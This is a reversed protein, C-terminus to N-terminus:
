ISLSRHLIEVIEVGQYLYVNLDVSTVGEDYFCTGGTTCFGLVIWQETISDQLSSNDIDGPILEHGANRDYQVDYQLRDYGSVGTIEFGVELLGQRKYFDLVIGQEPEQGQVRFEGEGCEGFCDVAAFNSNVTESDTYASRSQGVLTLGFLFLLGLLKPLFFRSTKPKKKLNVKLKGLEKKIALVESYIIITAPIVVLAILGTQTRAFSVVFGILPLAWIVKGVVLGPDVRESDADENADGKTIFLKGNELEEINKLRHTILYKTDGTNQFTIVNGVQYENQKQTLVLSGLPISPQMSGSQVVLLKYSPVLNSSSFAVLGAVIVLGAFFLWYVAKSLNKMIKKLRQM